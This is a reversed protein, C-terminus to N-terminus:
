GCDIDKCVTVKCIIRQQYDELWIHELDRFTDETLPQNIKGESFVHLIQM